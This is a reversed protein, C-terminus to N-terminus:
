VRVKYINTQMPSEKTAAIYVEKKKENFGLISQVLWPGQTLQTHMYESSYESGFDTAYTEPYKRKSLDFLYLHNFGDRQSQYIFKTDDWSLFIIPTQPEVYKPHKETYLTEALKGTQADYRCLQAHNQDRNVEILFLSKEDPSWSINTFYRDTPDGTELYLTQKTDPNYIGVQVQHSTMGAMPYRIPELKGVRATVDVLPYETVMREDMRYFALLTGKPSWFTGKTIGFENRHVSQGCVVGEPEQTVAEGDVYLNNKLTYAVHGSETDYDVNAAGKATERVSVVRKQAWDYTIFKGHLSLLAQTKDAWPYSLGYLHHLQGLSDAQLVTNIDARTLLLAERGNKPDITLLSDIGPKMATDGWWQLGYLDETYRYTEGGPILDELTPMRLPAATGPTTEQAMLMAPAMLLACLTKTLRKM